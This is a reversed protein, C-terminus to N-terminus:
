YIHNVNFIYFDYLNLIIGYLKTNFIQKLKKIVAGLFFYLNSADGDFSYLSREGDCSV